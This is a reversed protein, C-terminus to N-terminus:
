NPKLQNILKHKDAGPSREKNITSNMTIFSPLQIFQEM